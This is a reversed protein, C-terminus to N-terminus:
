CKTIYIKKEFNVSLLLKYYSLILMIKYILKFNLKLNNITYIYINYFNFFLFLTLNKLFSLFKISYQMNILFITNKKKGHKM